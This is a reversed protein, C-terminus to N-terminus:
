SAGVLDFDHADCALEDDGLYNHTIEQGPQITKLAVVTLDDFYVANPQASHNIFRLDNTVRLGREDDIWLVHPGDEQTHEGELHGIVAGKKIIESAFLGHGHIGSPKVSFM